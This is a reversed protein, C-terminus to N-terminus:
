LNDELPDIIQRINFNPSPEGEVVLSPTELVHLIEEQVNPDSISM